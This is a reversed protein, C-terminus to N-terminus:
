EKSRIRDLIERHARRPMAPLFPYEPERMYMMRLLKMPNWERRVYTVDNIVEYIPIGLGPKWTCFVRVEYGAQALAEAQKNVRFDPSCPNSVLMAVRKRPKEQPRAKDVIDSM